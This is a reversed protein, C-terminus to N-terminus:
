GMDGANAPLNKVVLAVQSVVSLLMNSEILTWVNQLIVTIEINEVHSFKYSEKSNPVTCMVMLIVLSLM